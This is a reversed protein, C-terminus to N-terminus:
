GRRQSKMEWTWGDGSGEGEALDGLGPARPWAESPSRCRCDKGLTRDPPCRFTLSGLISNDFGM